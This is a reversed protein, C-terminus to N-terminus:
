PRYHLGRDSDCSFCHGLFEGECVAVMELERNEDPLVYKAVSEQDIRGALSEWSFLHYSFSRMFAAISDRPLLDDCIVTSAMRSCKSCTSAILMLSISTENPSFLLLLTSWSPFGKGSYSQM